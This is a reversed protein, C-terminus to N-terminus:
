KVPHIIDIGGPMYKTLVEPIKVSGDAQQFNELIAIFIRPTALATNNLMYVFKKEGGKNIYKM